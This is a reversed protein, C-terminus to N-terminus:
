IITNYPDSGLIVNHLNMVINHPVPINYLINEYILRFTSFIKYFIKWDWTVNNHIQIINHTSSVNHYSQESSNDIEVSHVRM